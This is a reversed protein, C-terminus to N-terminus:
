AATQLKSHEAAILGLLIRLNSCLLDRLYRPTAPPVFLRFIEVELWRGAVEAAPSDMGALCTRLDAEERELSLELVKEFLEEHCYLLAQDVAAESYVEELIPQRYRGSSVNRLLAVHLLRGIDSPIAALWQSTFDEVVRQNQAFRELSEM